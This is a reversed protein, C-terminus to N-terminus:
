CTTSTARPRQLARPSRGLVNRGGRLDNGGGGFAQARVLRSVRRSMKQQGRHGRAGRVLKPRASKARLGKRVRVRLSGGKRSGMHILPVVTGAVLLGLSCPKRTHPQPHLSGRAARGVLEMSWGLGCYAGGAEAMAEAGQTHACACMRMSPPVTCVASGGLINTHNTHLLQSFVHRTLPSERPQVALDTM